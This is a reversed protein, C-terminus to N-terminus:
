HNHSQSTTSKSRTITVKVQTQSSKTTTVKVKVQTQSSKTTTITVKIQPQSQSLSHSQWQSKTQWMSQCTAPQSKSITFIITVKASKTVNVNVLLKVTAASSKIITTISTANKQQELCSHSLSNLSMVFRFLNSHELLTIVKSFFCKKPLVGYSIKVFCIFASKTRSQCTWHGTRAEGHGHHKERTRSQLFMICILAFWAFREDNELFIYQSHMIERYDWVESVTELIKIHRSMGRWAKAAKTSHAKWLWIFDAKYGCWAIFVYVHVAVCVPADISPRDFM